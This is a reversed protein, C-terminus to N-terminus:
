QERESGAQGDPSHFFRVQDCPLVRLQWTSVSYVRAEQGLVSFVQREQLSVELWSRKRAEGKERVAGPDQPLLFLNKM